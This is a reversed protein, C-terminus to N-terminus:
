RLIMSLETDEFIQVPPIPRTLAARTFFICHDLYLINGYGFLISRPRSRITNSYWSTFRLLWHTSIIPRNSIGMTNGNGDNDNDFQHTFGGWWDKTETEKTSEKHLQAKDYLWRIGHPDIVSRPHHLLVVAGKAADIGM